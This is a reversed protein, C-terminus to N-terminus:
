SSLFIGSVALQSPAFYAVAALVVAYYPLAYAFSAFASITGDVNSSVKKSVIDKSSAFVASLLAAILGQSAPM